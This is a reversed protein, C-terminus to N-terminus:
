APAMNLNIRVFLSPVDDKCSFLGQRFVAGDPVCRDVTKDTLGYRYVPVQSSRGSEFVPTDNERRFTYSNGTEDDTKCVIYGDTDSYDGGCFHLCIRNNRRVILGM